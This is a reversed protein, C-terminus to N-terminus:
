DRNHMYELIIIIDISWAIGKLQQTFEIDKSKHWTSKLNLVKDSHRVM